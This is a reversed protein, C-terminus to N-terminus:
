RMGKMADELGKMMGGMEKMQGQAKAQMYRTLAEKMPEGYKGRLKEQVSESPEDMGEMKTALEALDSDIETLKTSKPNSEFEEAYSNMMSIQKKVLREHKGDCATLAFVMLM